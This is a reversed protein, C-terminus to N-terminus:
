MIYSPDRFMRRDTQFIHQFYHPLIEYQMYMIYICVYSIIKLLIIAYVHLYLHLQKNKLLIRLNKRTGYWYLM